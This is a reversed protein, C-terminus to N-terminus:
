PAPSVVEEGRKSIKLTGGKDRILVGLRELWAPVEDPEEGRAFEELVERGRALSAEDEPIMLRLLRRGEVISRPGADIVVAWGAIEGIGRYQVLERNAGIKTRSVIEPELVIPDRTGRFVLYLVGMTAALGTAMALKRWLFHGALWWTLGGLLFAFPVTFFVSWFLGLGIKMWADSKLDFNRERVLEILNM